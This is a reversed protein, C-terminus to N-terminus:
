RGVAVVPTGCKTCFKRDAGAANLCKPCVNPRPFGDAATPAPKPPPPPPPATAAPPKPPDPKPPPPPAPRVTEPAPASRAPPAEPSKPAAIALPALRGRLLDNMARAGIRSIVASPAAGALFEIAWFSQLGRTVLVTEPEAWPAGVGVVLFPSVNGFGACLTQLEPGLELSGDAPKAWGRAILASAGADLAAMSAACGTAAFRQLVPALWRSDFGNDIAAIQKEAAERSFAAVNPRRRELVARLQEERCADALAALATLEAISFAARLPPLDPVTRWGLLDDIENLIADLSLASLIRFGGSELPVAAAIEGPGSYYRATGAPHVHITAQQAPDALVAITRRWEPTLGAAAVAGKQRLSELVMPEVEAAPRVGALPSTGAPALSFLRLATQIEAATLNVTM